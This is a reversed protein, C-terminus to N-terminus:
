PNGCNFVSMKEAFYDLFCSIKLPLHLGPLYVAHIPQPPIRYDDLLTVLQGSMLEKVVLWMPVNGIGMGQLVGARYAASNNTAYRGTVPLTLPNGEEEFLWVHAGSRGSYVICNHNKLDDPHEPKGHTELYDPTAVTIRPCNALKRAMLTSDPLMGVRIAIDVDEQVLDVLRDNLLLEITIDPYLQFFDNLHPILHLSGFATVTSVRLKGKPNTQLQVAAEEAEEIDLLIQSIREYYERGVETLALSRTSRNLLKAGLWNELDAVHKSVTPQTTKMDKAVASFSGAEVVRVFMAMNELRNM